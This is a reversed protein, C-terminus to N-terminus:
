PFNIIAIPGTTYQLVSFSTIYKRQFLRHQGFCRYEHAFFSFATKFPSSFSILGFESYIVTFIFYHLLSAVSNVYGMITQM